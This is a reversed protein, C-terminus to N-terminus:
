QRMARLLVAPPLRVEELETRTMIQVCRVIISRLDEPPSEERPRTPDPEYVLDPPPTDGVSIFWSQLRDLVAQKLMLTWRRRLAKPLVTDPLLEDTWRSVLHKEEEPLALQEAYSQRLNKCEEITFTPLPVHGVGENPPTPRLEVHEGDWYWDGARGTDVLAQWFDPRIRWRKPLDATADTPSEKSLVEHSTDTQEPDRLQVWSPKRTRDVAVIDDFLDLWEQFSSVGWASEDFHRSTLDLIRNKLVASSMEQWNPKGSLRAIDFARRILISGLRYLEDEDRPAGHARLHDRILPEFEVPVSASASRPADKNVTALVELVQSTEVGLARALEYVRM